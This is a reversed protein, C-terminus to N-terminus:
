DNKKRVQYNIKGKLNNISEEEECIEEGLLKKMM